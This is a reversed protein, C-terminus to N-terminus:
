DTSYYQHGHNVMIKKARKFVRRPLIHRLKTRFWIKFEGRYSILERSDLSYGNSNLFRKARHLLKGKRIVDLFPFECNNSIACVASLERAMPTLAVEYQWANMPEKLTKKMFDTRWLGPYLSIKYNGESINRFYFGSFDESKVAEERKLYGRSAKYLRLYDVGNDDMFSVASELKSNYIKETLFYDDLTFLVYKTNVYEIAKALRQTIETGEGASIIEVGDYKSDTKNDTALIVKAPCDGWAKKMLDFHIDWLDSFKDCTSIIVTYEAKKIM